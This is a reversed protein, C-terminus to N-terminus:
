KTNEEDRLYNLKRLIQLLEYEKYDRHLFFRKQYYLRRSSPLIDLTLTREREM